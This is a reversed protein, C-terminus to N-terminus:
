ALTSVLGSDWSSTNLLVVDRWCKVCICRSGEWVYIYNQPDYLQVSSQIFLLSDVTLNCAHFYDQVVLHRWFSYSQYICESIIYNFLTFAPVVHSCWLKFSHISKVKSHYKVLTKWLNLACKFPPINCYEGFGIPMWVCVMPIEVRSFPELIKSELSPFGFIGFLM